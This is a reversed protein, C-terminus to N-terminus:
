IFQCEVVDRNQEAVSLTAPLFQGETVQYSVPTTSVAHITTGWAWSTSM